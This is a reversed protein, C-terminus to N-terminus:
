PDWAFKRGFLVATLLNHVDSHMKITFQKSSSLTEEKYAWKNKSVLEFNLDFVSPFVIVTDYIGGMSHLEFDTRENTLPADIRACSSVDTKDLCYVVACVQTWMWYTGSGKAVTGNYALLMYSINSQTTNKVPSMKSGNDQNFSYSAECCFTNHCNRVSAYKTSALKSSKKLATTTTPPLEKYSYFTINEHIIFHYSADFDRHINENEHNSSFVETISSSNENAIFNVSTNEMLIRSFDQNVNETEADTVYDDSEIVDLLAEEHKQRHKEESSPISEKYSERSSIIQQLSVDEDVNEINNENARLSARVIKCTNLCTIRNLFREWISVARQNVFLTRLVREIDLKSMFHATADEVYERLKMLFTKREFESLHNSELRKLVEEGSLLNRALKDVLADIAKEQDDQFDMALDGNVHTTINGVILMPEITDTSFTYKADTTNDGYFLGSGM